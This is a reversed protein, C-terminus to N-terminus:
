KNYRQLAKDVYEKTAQLRSVLNFRESDNVKQALQDVIERVAIPVLHENTMKKRWLNVWIM